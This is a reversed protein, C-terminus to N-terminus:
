KWYHNMDKVIEEIMLDIEDATLNIGIKNVRETLLKVVQEKKQQGAGSEKIKQEIGYVFMEAYEKISQLKNESIKTKIFPIFYRTAVFALLLVLTEVINKIIAYNM